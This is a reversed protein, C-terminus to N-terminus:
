RPAAHWTMCSRANTLHMWTFLVVPFQGSSRGNNGDEEPYVIFGNMAGDQTPITTNKRDHHPKHEYFLKGLRTSM